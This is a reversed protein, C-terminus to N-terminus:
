KLAKIHKLDLLTDVGDVEVDEHIEIVYDNPDLKLLAGEAHRKKGWFYYSVQNQLGLLDCCTARQIKTFVWVGFDFKHDKSFVVTFEM